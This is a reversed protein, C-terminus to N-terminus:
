IQTFRLSNPDYNTNEIDTALADLEDQDPQGSVATDESLKVACVEDGTTCTPNGEEEYPSYNEAKLVEEEYDGEAPMNFVWWTPQVVVTDNADKEGALVQYSLVGLTMIIAAIGSISIIKKM